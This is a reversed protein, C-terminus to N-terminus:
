YLIKKTAEFHSANIIGEMIKYFRRVHDQAYSCAEKENGNEVAQLIRKLDEYNESVINDNWPFFKLYEHINRHVAELAVMFLPNGAIDALILHFEEDKQIFDEWSSFGREFYERAEDVLARLRKKDKQTAMKAALSAVVGEIEV